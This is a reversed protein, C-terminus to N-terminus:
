STKNIDLYNFVNSILGFVSCLWSVSPSWFYSASFRVFFEQLKVIVANIINGSVKPIETFWQKNKSRKVIQEPEITIKEPYKNTKNWFIRIMLTFNTKLCVHLVLYLSFYSFGICTSRYAPLIRPKTFKCACM